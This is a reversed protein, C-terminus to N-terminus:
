YEIDIRTWTEGTDQTKMVFGLLTGAFLTTHRVNDIALASTNNPPSIQDGMNINEWSDPQDVFFTRSLGYVGAYLVDDTREDQQVTGDTDAITPPCRPEAQICFTLVRVSFNQSNPINSNENTWTRGGDLSRFTGGQTETEGGSTGAYIETPTLPDVSIVLLSAGLGESLALILQEWRQTQANYKYFKGEATGAYVVSPYIGYSFIRIATVSTSDLGDNLEKWSLGRDRSVWVGKEESAAYIDTCPTDPTQCTNPDVAVQTISPIAAQQIPSWAGGGNFTWFLGQNQTGAYLVDPVEPDIVLDTVNWDTLGNILQDWKSGGDKSKFIGSGNSAVYVISCDVQDTMTNVSCSGPDEGSLDDPNQVISGTDIVVATIPDNNSPNSTGENWCASVSLFLIPLVPLLKRFGQLTM